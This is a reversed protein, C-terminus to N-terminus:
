HCGLGAVCWPSAPLSSGKSSWLVLYLWTRREWFFQSGQIPESLCSSFVQSHSSELMANYRIIGGAEGFNTVKSCGKSELAAGLAALWGWGLCEWPCWCRGPVKGTGQWAELFVFGRRSHTHSLSSTALATNPCGPQQQEM